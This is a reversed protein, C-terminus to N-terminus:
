LISNGAQMFTGIWSGFFTFSSLKWFIKKELNFKGLCKIFYWDWSVSFFFFHVPRFSNSIYQTIQNWRQVKTSSLHFFFFERFLWSLLPLTVIIMWFEVHNPFTQLQFLLMLFLCINTAICLDHLEEEPGSGNASSLFMVGLSLGISTLTYNVDLTIFFCSYYPFTVSFYHCISIAFKAHKGHCLNSYLIWM